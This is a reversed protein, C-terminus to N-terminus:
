LHAGGRGPKFNKFINKILIYSCYKGRGKGERGEDGKLDGGEMGEWTRGGVRLNITQKGKIIITVCVNIYICTYIFACYVYICLM